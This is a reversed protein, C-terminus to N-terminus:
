PTTGPPPPSGGADGPTRPSLTPRGTAASPGPPIVATGTSSRPRQLTRSRRRSHWSGVTSGDSTPGTSTSAASITIPERYTGPPWMAFQGRRRRARDFHPFRYPASMSPDAHPVYRGAEARVPSVRELRDSVFVRSRAAVGEEDLGCVPDSAPVALYELDGDRERVTNAALRLHRQGDGHLLEGEHGPPASSVEHPAPAVRGVIRM